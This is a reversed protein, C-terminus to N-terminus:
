QSYARVTNKDLIIRVAEENSIKEVPDQAATVAKSLASDANSIDKQIAADAKAAVTTTDVTVTGGTVAGALAAPEVKITGDTNIKVNGQEVQTVLSAVNFTVTPPKAGAGAAAVAADAAAKAQAEIQKALATLVNLTATAVFVKRKVTTSQNASGGRSLRVESGFATQDLAPVAVILAQSIADVQQPAGYVLGAFVKDFQGLFARSVPGVLRPAESPAGQGIALCIKMLANPQLAGLAIAVKEAQKPATAAAAKAVDFLSDPLAQVATSAIKAAANPVESIVAGVVAALLDPTSKAAIRVLELAVSEKDVKAASAVLEGAVGPQELRSAQSFRSSLASSREKSIGATANVVAGASLVLILIHKLTIM